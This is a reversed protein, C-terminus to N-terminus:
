ALPIVLARIRALEKKDRIPKGEVGIYRFGTGVKKRVIGPGTESVYRLGVLTASEVPGATSRRRQQRRPGAM